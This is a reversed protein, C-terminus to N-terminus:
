EGWPILDELEEVMEEQFMHGPVGLVPDQRAEQLEQSLCWRRPSTQELGM